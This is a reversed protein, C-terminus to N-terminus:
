ILQYRSNHRNHRYQMHIEELSGAYEPFHQILTQFGRALDEIFQQHKRPKVFHKRRFGPWLYEYRKSFKVGRTLAGTGLGLLVTSLVGDNALSQRALSERLLSTRFLSYVLTCKHSNHHLRTFSLVREERSPSEVFAFLDRPLTKYIGLRISKLRFLPFAFDASKERIVGLADEIFDPSWLDDHAAWMFFEGTAQELTFEFNRVAGLNEAQRVYRIRPDRAAYDKCIAETSDTSANDSLILEFHPYTQGLLAGLAQSLYKGGNYVPLGISVKPGAAVRAEAYASSSAM